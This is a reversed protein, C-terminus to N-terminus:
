IKEDSKFVTKAMIFFLFFVKSHHFSNKFRIFYSPAVAQYLIPGFRGQWLTPLVVQTGLFWIEEEEEEKEM